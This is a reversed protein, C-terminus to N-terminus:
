TQIRRAVILILLLWGWSTQESANSTGPAMACGSKGAAASPVPSVSAVPPAGQVSASPGPAGSASSAASSAPATDRRCWVESWAKTGTSRCRQTMGKPGLERACRDADGYVTRCKECKEGALQQEKVECAMDDWGPVPPIDAVALTSLSTAAAAAMGVIFHTTKSM